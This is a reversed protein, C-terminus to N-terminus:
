HPTFPHETINLSSNSHFCYGELVLATIYLIFGYILIFDLIIRQHLSVYNSSFDLIRVESQKTIFSCVRYIYYSLILSYTLSKLRQVQRIDVHAPPSSFDTLLSFFVLCFHWCGVEGRKWGWKQVIGDEGSGGWQLLMTSFGIRALCWGSFLCFTM